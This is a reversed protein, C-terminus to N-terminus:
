VICGHHCHANDRKARILEAFGNPLGKDVLKWSSKEAGQAVDRVALTEGIVIVAGGDPTFGLPWQGVPENKPPPEAGQPPWQQLTKGTAIDVVGIRTDGFGLALRKRDLSLIASYGPQEVLQKGNTTEYLRISTKHIGEVVTFHAVTLFEGGVWLRPYHGDTLTRSPGLVRGTTANWDLFSLDQAITAITKGDSRFCISEIKCPSGRLPISEKGTSLEWIRIVGNENMTALRKSDPSVAFTSGVTAFDNPWLPGPKGTAVDWTRIAAESANNHNLAKGLSRFSSVAIRGDPTFLASVICRGTKIKHSWEKTGKEVHWLQLNAEPGMVLVESTYHEQNAGDIAMLWKGDPSIALPTLAKSDRETALIRLEKGTVLEVIHMSNADDSVVVSSGDPSFVFYTFPSVQAALSHALQGTEANWILIAKSPQPKATKGGRPLALAAYNKGTPSLQFLKFPGPPSSGKPQPLERKQAGDLDYEYKGRPGHAIAVRGDGPLWVGSLLGQGLGLADRGGDGLTFNARGTAVDWRRVWGGGASVLQKGDATFKLARSGHSANGHRFAITGLRAVAGKPLPDGFLDFGPASVKTQDQPIHEPQVPKVQALLEPAEPGRAQLWQLGVWGAAVAMAITLGIGTKALTSMTAGNALQVVSPSVTGGSIVALATTVVTQRLPRTLSAQAASPALIGAVVGAGLTAGRRSMRGRLLDRAKDLRRRLTTLSWGLQKAAEDRTRGELYCLVVPSRYREPMRQLEEDLVHLLEEWGPDSPEAEARQGAVKIERRRRASDSSRVKQALKQAVGYLWAALSERRRISRAKRILVLFTAQLVEEALHADGLKRRCLGLVMPGHRDLIEAFGSPDGHSVFHHLLQRDSSQTLLPAVVQKLLPSLSVCRRAM